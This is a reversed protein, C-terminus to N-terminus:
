NLACEYRFPINNIYLIMDIIAESKSRVMHGSSTKQNLQEPHKPNRKYDAQMWDILEQSHPKFYPSLLEKYRNDNIISKKSKRICNSHKQLYSDIAKKELVLEDYQQVLYKKM